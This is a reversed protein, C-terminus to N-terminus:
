GYFFGGELYARVAEAEGAFGNIDVEGDKILLYGPLSSIQRIQCLPRGAHENDESVVDMFQHYLAPRKALGIFSGSGGQSNVRPIMAQIGNGIGAAASTFIGAVNGMIANGIMGGVASVGGLAAGLYNSSVQSLQIPVGAQGTYIGQEVGNIMVRLTAAGTVLDIYIQGNIESANASLSTDIDINGFPPFDLNLRTYPAVNMYNGRIATLPHKRIELGDLIFRVYPPDNSLIKHNASVTWDWINLDSLEVGTFTQYTIPIWMCSKIYSLPDILSKQLALSANEPSFDPDLLQLDGLLATVLATLGEQKMASYIVSGYMHDSNPTNKTVYGVIFVGHDLDVNEQNDIDNWHSIGYKVYTECNTKEPYYNDVINGDYAASSRLVYLDSNGIQDRFTALLDTTLNAMWLRNQIWTWDSVYYYRDFQPIYAYNWSPDDGTGADLIILPNAISSAEKLVCSYSAGSGGPRYTSNERKSFNYFNVTFAM